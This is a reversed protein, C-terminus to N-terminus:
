LLWYKTHDLPGMMAPTRTPMSRTMRSVVIRNEDIIGSERPNTDKIVSRERKVCCANRYWYCAIELYRSLEEDTIDDKELLNNKPIFTDIIYERFSKTPPEVWEHVYFVRLEENNENVLQVRIVKDYSFDDWKECLVEFSNHLKPPLEIPLRQQEQMNHM